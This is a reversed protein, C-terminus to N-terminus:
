PRPQGAYAHVSYTELTVIDGVHKLKCSSGNKMISADFSIGYPTVIFCCDIMTAKLRDFCIDYDLLQNM